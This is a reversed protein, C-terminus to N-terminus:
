FLNGVFNEWFSNLMLLEFCCVREEFMGYILIKNRLLNGLLKKYIILKIIKYKWMWLGYIDSIVNVLLYRFLYEIM